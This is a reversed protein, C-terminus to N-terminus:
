ESVGSAFSSPLDRHTHLVRWVDVNDERDLYVVVYPFGRVPWTRVEPIDLEYSWRLSGTLPHRGLHKLTQELADVFRLALAADVERAYHEVASEIDAHARRRLDVPKPV